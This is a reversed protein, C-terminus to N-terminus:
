KLSDYYTRKEHRGAKEKVPLSHTAQNKRQGFMPNWCRMLAPRIDKGVLKLISWYPHITLPPTKDAEVWKANEWFEVDLEPTDSFHGQDTQDCALIRAQTIM